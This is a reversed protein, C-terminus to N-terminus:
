TPSFGLTKFLRVVSFLVRLARATSTLIKRRLALLHRQILPGGIL